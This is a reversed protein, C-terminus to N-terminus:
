LQGGAGLAEGVAERRLDAEREGLVVDDEVDDREEVHVAPAGRMEERHDAAAVDDEAAEVRGREHAEDLAM